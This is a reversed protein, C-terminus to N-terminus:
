MSHIPDNTRRSWTESTNAFSLFQVSHGEHAEARRRPAQTRGEESFVRPPCNCSHRQNSQSLTFVEYCTEGNQTTTEEGGTGKMACPVTLWPSRQPATCSVPIVYKSSTGKSAYHLDTSYLVMDQSVAKARIGCETVRYTFQYAHPQVHNPPCGLGLHLEHFHVYVDNNLLFPHVTVMFWDISCLVTMPNQGSCASFVFTLTVLGRILEFVKM